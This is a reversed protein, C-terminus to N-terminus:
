YGCHYNSGEFIKVWKGGERRFANFGAGEFSQIYTFVEAVGDSDYDFVDLLREHLVGEDVSSIEGSMVADQKLNEFESFGFSYKGEPGKDAIFFLLGRSTPSTDVWFTGILEASGDSDVDVATLNHYKLSRAASAPVSNKVFEARVLSEIEAREAAAPLRRVGSGKKTAAANTALAMVNGKLKAKASTATVEAMNASCDAKPDASKIAVTGADAGGFILRYLTGPKYYAKHLLALKPPEDGGSAPQVLKGKDIHAIPEVMKGDNLVAFIIPRAKAAPKPKAKQASLSTISLGVLVTTFAILKLPKM